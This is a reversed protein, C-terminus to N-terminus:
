RKFFAFGHDLRFYLVTAELDTYAYNSPETAILHLCDRLLHLSQVIIQVCTARLVVCAGGRSYGDGYVFM